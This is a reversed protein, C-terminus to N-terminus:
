KGGDLKGFKAEFRAIDGQALYGAQEIWHDRVIRGKFTGLQADIREVDADTWAAIEAFRTVGLTGLLTVLKPGVGKLQLLPDPAGAAAQAPTPGAAAAPEAIQTVSPKPAAPKPAAPKPLAPKPLVPKPAARPLAPKPVPRAAPKAVSPKAALKEEAPPAVLPPIDGALGLPASAAIAAITEAQASTGAPAPPAGIDAAPAEGSATSRGWVWWILVVGIVIAILLWVWNAEIFPMRM